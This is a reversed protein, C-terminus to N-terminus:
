CLCNSSYLMSVTGQVDLSISDHGEGAATSAVLTYLGEDALVLNTLNVSLLDHSFVAQPNELTSSNLFWQLNAPTVQPAARTITFRLVRWTGIVGVVRSQGVAEM